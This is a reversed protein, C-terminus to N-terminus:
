LKQLTEFDNEEPIACLWNLSLHFPREAIKDIVKQFSKPTKSILFDKHTIIM